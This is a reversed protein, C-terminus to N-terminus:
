RLTDSFPEAVLQFDDEYVVYGPRTTRVERIQYGCTTVIRAMTRARRIHEHASDKFWSIAKERRHARRSRNFRRPRDLNENFWERLLQLQALDAPPADQRDRVWSAVLFLGAPEGSNETDPVDSVFRVLMSLHDATICANELPCM